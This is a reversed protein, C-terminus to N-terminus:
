FCLSIIKTRVLGVSVGDLFRHFIGWIERDGLNLRYSRYTFMLKM